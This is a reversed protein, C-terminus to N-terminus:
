GLVLGGNKPPEVIMPPSFVIGDRRLVKARFTREFVDESFGNLPFDSMPSFGLVASMAISMPDKRKVSLSTAVLSSAM